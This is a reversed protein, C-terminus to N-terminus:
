GLVQHQQWCEYLWSPRVVHVGGMVLTDKSLADENTAHHAANSASSKGAANANGRFSLKSAKSTCLYLYQCRLLQQKQRGCECQGSIQTGFNSIQTGLATYELVAHASVKTQWQVRM